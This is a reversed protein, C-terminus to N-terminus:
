LGNTCIRKTIVSNNGILYVIESEPSLAKVFINDHM